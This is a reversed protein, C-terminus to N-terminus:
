RRAFAHIILEILKRGPASLPAPVVKCAARCLVDWKERCVNLLEERFIFKWKGVSLVADGGADTFLGEACQILDLALLFLLCFLVATIAAWALRGAARLCRLPLPTRM